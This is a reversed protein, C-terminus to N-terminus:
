GKDFLALARKYMEVGETDGEAPPNKELWKALKIVFPDAKRGAKSESFTRAYEVVVTYGIDAVTIPVKGGLRQTTRFYAILGEDDAGSNWAHAVAKLKSVEVTASNVRQGALKTDDKTPNAKGERDYTGMAGANRKKCDKLWQDIAKVFQDRGEPPLAMLQLAYGKWTIAATMAQAIVANALTNGMMTADRPIGTDIAKSVPTMGGAAIEGMTSRPAQKTINM